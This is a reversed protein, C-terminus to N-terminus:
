AVGTRLPTSPVKMEEASPHQYRYQPQRYTSVHHQAARLTPMGVMHRRCFYPYEKVTELVWDPANEPLENQAVCHQVYGRWTAFRHVGNSHRACSFPTAGPEGGKTQEPTVKRVESEPRTPHRLLFGRAALYHAISSASDAPLPGVPTWDRREEALMGHNRESGNQRHTAHNKMGVTEQWYMAAGPTVWQPEVSVEIRHHVRLDRQIERWKTKRFIEVRRDNGKEKSLFVDWALAGAPVEPLVAKGWDEDQPTPPNEVWGPQKSQAGDFHRRRKM